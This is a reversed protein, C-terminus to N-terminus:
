EAPIFKISINEIQGDAKRTVEIDDVSCLNIGLNNPIFKMVEEKVRDKTEVSKM